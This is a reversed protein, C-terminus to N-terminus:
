DATVIAAVHSAIALCSTLGPSDIGAVQVLEPVAADRGIMFDAFTVEPPSLKARIGTGAPRLDALTLDPLLSQAPALFSEVPLRNSEYDDKREQYAATPGLLVAGWTTRTVHVGLGHGSELPLPYVLHNVLHRRAPVLEAYEGRVPYIRFRVGGFLASVDDAYLGACNVVTRAAITEFPTRIVLHGNERDAGIAPAATLVVAGRDVCLRRLARVRAETEVLGTTGSWLAV